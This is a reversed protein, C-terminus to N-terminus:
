TKESNTPIICQIARKRGGLYYRWCEDNISSDNTKYIFSRGGVTGVIPGMRHNRISVARPETETRNIIM